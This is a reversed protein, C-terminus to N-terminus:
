FRYTLCQWLFYGIYIAFIASSLALIFFIAALWKQKPNAWLPRAIQWLFVSLWVAIIVVPLLMMIALAM